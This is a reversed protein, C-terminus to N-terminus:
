SMPLFDLKLGANWGGDVIFEAGTSYSAEDSALFLSMRAVEIPMGVRPLPHNKYFVNVSDDDLQDANGMATNIGGPHVTNVRIGYHGLEVAASKSLGRMGWKSSAYASLSNKAQLGDISSINIISGAGAKKMPEIVARIGNYCGVLNINLVNMYEETTQEAIAKFQVIGANNVLVNLPGMAEAAAVANQWDTENTVDLKVFRANAGLEAALAEGEKELIDGIVVNAGEAIFLRATVEGMGRASGTIIATKGALRTM